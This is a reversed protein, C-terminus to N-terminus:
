LSWGKNKQRHTEKPLSKRIPIKIKTKLLKGHSRSRLSLAWPLLTSLYSISPMYSLGLYINLSTLSIFVNHSFPYKFTSPQIYILSKLLVTPYRCLPMQNGRLPKEFKFQFHIIVLYNTEFQWNQIVSYLIRLTKLLSTFM